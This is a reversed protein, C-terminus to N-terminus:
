DEGGHGTQSAPPYFSDRWKSSVGHADQDGAGGAEDAGGQSLSQQGATVDDVAEVVVVVVVVGGQLFGPQRLERRMGSVRMLAGLEGVAGRHIGRKGAEPRLAHHMQRGLGAHAIGDLIRAGVHLAVQDAEDIDELGAAVAADVM